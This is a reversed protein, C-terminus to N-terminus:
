DLDPSKHDNVVESPIRTKRKSSTIRNDVKPRQVANFAIGQLSHAVNVTM